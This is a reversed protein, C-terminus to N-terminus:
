KKNVGWQGKTQDYLRKLASKAVHPHITKKLKMIDPMHCKRLRKGSGCPCDLHGRAQAISLCKLYRQITLPETTGVMEGYAEWLGQVGHSREGMPRKIGAEALAHAIFYNRLPGDLFAILSDSQANILWEEPVIVCLTGSAYAHWDPNKSPVRGELEKVIAISRPFDPPIIIQIQFRDLEIGEHIVPFGGRLQIVDDDSFVNLDPYNKELEQKLLNLRDPHKKHWPRNM